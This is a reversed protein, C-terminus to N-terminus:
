RPFPAATLAETVHNRAAAPQDSHEGHRKGIFDAPTVSNTCAVVPAWSQSTPQYGAQALLVAEHAFYTAATM